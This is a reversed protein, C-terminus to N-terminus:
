PAFHVIVTGSGTTDESLRRCTLGSARPSMQHYHAAKTYSTPPTDILRAARM